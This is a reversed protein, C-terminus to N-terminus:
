PARGISRATLSRKSSGSSAVGRAGAFRSASNCVQIMSRSSRLSASCSFMTLPAARAPLRRPLGASLAKMLDADKVFEDLPIRTPIKIKRM